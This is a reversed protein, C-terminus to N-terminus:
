PFIYIGDMSNFCRARILSRSDYGGVNIYYSNQKLIIINYASGATIYPNLDVANFTYSGDDPTKIWVGTSDLGRMLTLWVDGGCANDWTVEFTYNFMTDFSEPETIIPTCSPLTISGNLDPIYDSGDIDITYISDYKLFPNSEGYTHYKQFTLWNLQYTNNVRVSTAQLPNITDEPAYETDFRAHLEDRSFSSNFAFRDIDILAYIPKPSESTFQWVPGTVTDGITNFATIKWYYTKNFKLIVPDFITDSTNARVLAPDPLTDFYVDFNFHENLEHVHNWVLHSNINVNFVQDAPSPAVPTGAEISRTHFIWQPGFVSDGGPLYAIVQWQYTTDMLIHGIAVSIDNDVYFEFDFGTLFGLRVKYDYEPNCQWSFLATTTFVTDNMVPSPNSPNCFTEPNDTASDDGCNIFFIILLLITVTIITSFVIRNKLM